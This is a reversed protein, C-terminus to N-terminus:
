FRGRNNAFRGAPSPKGVSGTITIVASEIWSSSNGETDVARIRAQVTDGVNTIDTSAVSVWAANRAGAAEQLTTDENFSMYAGGPEIKGKDSFPAYGAGNYDVGVEVRDFDVDAPETWEIIAGYIGAGVALTDVVALGSPPTTDSTWDISISDVAAPAATGASSTQRVACRLVDANGGATEISSLDVTQGSATITAWTFSSFSAGSNLSYAYGFETTGSAFSGTTTITALSWGGNGSEANFAALNGTLDADDLDPLQAVLATTSYAPAVAGGEYWRIYDWYTNSKENNAQDGFILKNTANANGMSGTVYSTGDAYFTIAGAGSVTVRYTHYEGDNFDTLTQASTDVLLTAILNAGSTKLYLVETDSGDSWQVECTRNGSSSSIKLRFEFTYGTAQVFSTGKEYRYQTNVNATTDLHFVSGSLTADSDVESAETTPATGLQTNYAWGDSTPVVSGDYGSSWATLVSAQRLAVTGDTTNQEPGDDFTWAASNAVLAGNISPDADSWGNLAM